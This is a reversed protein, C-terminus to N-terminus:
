LSSLVNRIARVNQPAAYIVGTGTAYAPQGSLFFVSLVATILICIIGKIMKRDM